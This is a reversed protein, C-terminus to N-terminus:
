EALNKSSGFPLFAQKKPSQDKPEYKHARSLDSFYERVWDYGSARDRYILRRVTDKDKASKDREWGADDLLNRWVIDFLQKDDIYPELKCRHFAKEIPLVMWKLDPPLHEKFAELRARTKRHDHIALWHKEFEPLENADYTPAAIEDYPKEDGIAVNANNPRTDPAITVSLSINMPFRNQDSQLVTKLKNSAGSEIFWIVDLACSDRRLSTLNGRADLVTVGNAFVEKTVAGLKGNYANRFPQPVSEIDDKRAVLRQLQLRVSCYAAAAAIAILAFPATLVSSLHSGVLAVGACIVFIFIAAAEREKELKSQNLLWLEIPMAYADFVELGKAIDGDGLRRVAYQHMSLTPALTKGGDSVPIDSTKTRM